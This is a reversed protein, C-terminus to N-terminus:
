DFILKLANIQRRSGSVTVNKPSNICAISLHEHIHDISLTSIYRKAAAESLGVSMMGGQGQFKALKATLYGRYYAIKLASERSLLGACYAAAIEGPSHGLVASPTIGCSGLLNVLAIQLATCIPQSYAPDHIQSSDEDKALEGLFFMLINSIVEFPTIVSFRGGM